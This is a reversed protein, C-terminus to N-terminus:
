FGPPVMKVHSFRKPFNVIGNLRHTTFLSKM